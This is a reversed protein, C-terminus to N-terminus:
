ICAVLMDLGTEILERESSCEIALQEQAYITAPLLRNMRESSHASVLVIQYDTGDPRVITYGDTQATM